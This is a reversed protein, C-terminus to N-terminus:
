GVVHNFDMKMVDRLYAVHAKSSPNFSFNIVVMDGKKIKPEKPERILRLGAEKPTRNKKVDSNCVKCACVCNTFSKTGGQDKPVVHDITRDVSSCKYKFRNGREDTHWYQCINQDRNFVAQDSYQTTDKKIHYGWFKILRVVLPAPMKFTVGDRSVGARIVKSEDASLVQVKGKVYLKIIDKLSREGWYYGDRTLVVVSAM